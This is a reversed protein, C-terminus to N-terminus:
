SNTWTDNFALFVDDHSEVSRTKPFETNGENIPILQICAYVYLRSPAANWRDRLTNRNKSIKWKFIFRAAFSLSLPLSFSLVRIRMWITYDIRRSSLRRCFLLFSLWKERKTPTVKTWVNVGVYNCNVECDFPNTCFDKGWRGTKDTIKPAVYTAVYFSWKADRWIIEPDSNMWIWRTSM